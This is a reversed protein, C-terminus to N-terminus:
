RLRSSATRMWASILVKVSTGVQKIRDDLKVLLEMLLKKLILEPPICNALLEYM